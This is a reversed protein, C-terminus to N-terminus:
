NGSIGLSSKFFCCRLKFFQGVHCIEYLVCKSLSFNTFLQIIVIAFLTETDRLSLTPTFATITSNSYVLGPNIKKFKEVVWKGSGIPDSMLIGSPNQELIVRYTAM